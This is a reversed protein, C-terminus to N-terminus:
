GRSRIVIAITAFGSQCHASPCVTMAAASVPSSAIGAVKDALDERDRSHGHADHPEAWSIPGLGVDARDQPMRRVHRAGVADEAAAERVRAAPPGEGPVQAIVGTLEAVIGPGLGHGVQRGVGRAPEAQGITPEDPGSKTASM